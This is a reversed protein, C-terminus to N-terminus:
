ISVINIMLVVNKQTSTQLSIKEMSKIFYDRDIQTINHNDQRNVTNDKPLFIESKKKVHNMFKDAYYSIMVVMILVIIYSM